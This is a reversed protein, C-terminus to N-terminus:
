QSPVYCAGSALADTASPASRRVRRGGAIRQERRLLIISAQVALLASKVNKGRLVPDILFPAKVLADVRKDHQQVSAYTLGHCQRCAFREAGPPRYLATVRRRCILRGDLIGPCRFWYRHGGFNGRTRVVPISERICKPERDGQFLCYRATLRIEESNFPEAELKMFLRELGPAPPVEATLTSGSAFAFSGAEVLTSVKLTQCEEVTTKRERARPM